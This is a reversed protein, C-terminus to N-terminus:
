ILSPFPSVCVVPSPDFDTSQFHSLCIQIIVWNAVMGQSCHTQGPTPLCSVVLCSTEIARTNLIDEMSASIYRLLVCIFFLRLVFTPSVAQSPELEADEAAKIVRIVARAAVTSPSFWICRCSDPVSGSWCITQLLSEVLLNKLALQASSPLCLCLDLLPETGPSPNRPAQQVAARSFRM